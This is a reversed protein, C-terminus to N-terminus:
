IMLFQWKRVGGVEKIVYYKFPGKSLAVKLFCFMQDISFGRKKLDMQRDANSAAEEPEVVEALGEESDELFEVQPGLFSVEV